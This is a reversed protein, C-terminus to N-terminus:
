YFGITTENSIDLEFIVQNINRPLNYVIRIRASNNDVDENNALVSIELVKIYPLYLRVQKRITSELSSRNGATNQEFIFRRVGVGYDFDSLNEGPNTLLLSKLYYNVQSEVNDILEFTDRDGRKLPWKPGYLPM